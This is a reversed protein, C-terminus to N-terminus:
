WEFGLHEDVPGDNHRDSNEIDRRIRSALDDASANYPKEEDSPLGPLIIGATGLAIETADLIDDKPRSRDPDYDLWEEIFDKHENRILIRGIKFLPSMAMIRETKKGKTFVPIVPPLGDLRAAAQSLAAQFAVSEIGFFQPRYKMHLTRILELQDPFPLKLGVAEIIYVASKDKAVGIVVYAFRDAGIAQSIAPDIGIYFDLDWNELYPLLTDDLAKRLPGKEPDKLPLSDWDYYHLWDGPLAKGATADFAAMYEQKFRLPHFTRRRYLYVDRPFYPNDITRYEVTGIAQEMKAADSWFEEYFWNKGRPTTTAIVIGIKDDLAPSAYDYADRSPIIAAEDIWLIDIGAGVLNDSMEASKFEILSGNSFEIVLEGKNFKFDKGEELGWKGLVDKLLTRRAARGTNRHDPSLVWVHLPEDSQVRHADWHFQEPHICYYAVEEAASLTKGGRRGAVLCRFRLLKGEADCLTHFALQFPHPGYGKSLFFALKPGFHPVRAKVSEAITRIGQSYHFRRMLSRENM